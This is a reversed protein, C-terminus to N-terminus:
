AKKSFAAKILEETPTGEGLTDVAKRVAKDADGAKYGLAILAAVADKFQDNSAGGAVQASGQTATVPGVKDQLEVIIREATKKGLGPAKALLAADGEAIANRVIQLSLQSLLNLAIRPGIGSVKDIVLRFFDREERASFGYLVQADERYAAHIFLQVEQGIAPMKETTTLPVHVEYGIGGAEVVALLPQCDTLEGRITAIM